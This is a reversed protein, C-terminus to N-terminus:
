EVAVRRVFPADALHEVMEIVALSEESEAGEPKRAAKLGWQRAEILHHGRFRGIGLPGAPGGMEGFELRQARGGHVEEPTQRIRCPRPGARRAVLSEANPRDRPDNRSVRRM